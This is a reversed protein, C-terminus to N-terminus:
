HSFSLIMFGFRPAERSQKSPIPTPISTSIWGWSHSALERPRRSELICKLSNWPNITHWDHQMWQPLCHFYAGLLGLRPSSLSIHELQVQCWPTSPPLTANFMGLFLMSSSDLISNSFMRQFSCKFHFELVNKPFFITKLSSLFHLTAEILQFPFWHLRKSM